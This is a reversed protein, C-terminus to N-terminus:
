CRAKTAAGVQLCENGSLAHETVDGMWGGAEADLLGRPPTTVCRIAFGHVGTRNRALGGFGM